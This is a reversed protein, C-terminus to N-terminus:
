GKKRFKKSISWTKNKEIFKGKVSPIPKSERDVVNVYGDLVASDNRIEIRM